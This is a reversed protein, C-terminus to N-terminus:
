CMNATILLVIKSLVSIGGYVYRSGGRLYREDGRTMRGGDMKNKRGKERKMEKSTISRRQRRM